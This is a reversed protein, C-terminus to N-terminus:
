LTRQNELLMEFEEDADLKRRFVYIHANRAINPYLQKNQYVFYNVFEKIWGQIPLDTLLHM